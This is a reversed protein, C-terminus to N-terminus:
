KRAAGSMLLLTPANVKVDDVSRGVLRDLQKETLKGKAILTDAVREILVRHRRVLMRTMARLRAELRDWDAGTVLKESMLAIQLRDNGDGGQTSGLIVVEAEAGAMYAIIRGHLAADDTRVKGRKEWAYTCAFHDAIIAPDPKV